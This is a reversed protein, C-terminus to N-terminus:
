CSPMGPEAPTTSAPPRDDRIPVGLAASSHCPDVSSRRVTPMRARAVSPGTTTTRAGPCSSGSAAAVVDLDDVVRLLAHARHLADGGPQGREGLRASTANTLEVSMGNRCGANTRRTSRATCSPASTPSGTARPYGCGSAAAYRVVSAGTAAFSTASSRRRGAKRNSCHATDRSSSAASPGVRHQGREVGVQVRHDVDVLGVVVSRGPLLGGGLDGDLAEAHQGGARVAVAFGSVTRAAVTASAAAAAPTSKPPPCTTAASFPSWIVLSPSVGSAAPSM